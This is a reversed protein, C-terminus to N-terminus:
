AMINGDPSSHFIYMYSYVVFKLFIRTHIRVFKRFKRKAQVHIYQVYLDNDCTQKNAGFKLIYSKLKVRVELLDCKNKDCSKPTLAVIHSSRLRTKYAVTYM